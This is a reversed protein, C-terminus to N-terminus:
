RRLEVEVVNSTSGLRVTVPTEGGLPMRPTVVVVVNGRGDPRYVLSAVGLQEVRPGDLRVGFLKIGIPRTGSMGSGGGPPLPDDPSEPDVLVWALPGTATVRVVVRGPGLDVEAAPSLTAFAGDAAAPTGSALAACVCAAALRRFRARDIKM